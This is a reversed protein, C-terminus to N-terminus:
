RCCCGSKAQAPKSGNADEKPKNSSCCGGSVPAQIVSKLERKTVPAEYSPVTKNM